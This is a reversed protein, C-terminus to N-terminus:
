ARKRGGTFSYAYLLATLTVEAIPLALYSKLVMAIGIAIPLMVIGVIVLVLLNLVIAEVIRHM